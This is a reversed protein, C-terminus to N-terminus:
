LSPELCAQEQMQAHFMPVAIPRVDDRRNKRLPILVSTRLCKSIVSNTCAQEVRLITQRLWNANGMNHTIQVAAETTWGAADPASGKKFSNICDAVRDNTIIGGMEDLSPAPLEFPPPQSEEQHGSPM